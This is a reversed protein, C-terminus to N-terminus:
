LNVAKILIVSKGTMCLNVFSANNAQQVHKSIEEVKKLIGHNEM